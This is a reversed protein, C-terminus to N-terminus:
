KASNKAKYLDNFVQTLYADAEPTVDVGQSRMQAELKLKAAEAPLEANESQGYFLAAAMGLMCQDFKCLEGDSSASAGGSVGGLDDLDIESDPCITKAFKVAEKIEAENKAKAKMNEAFENIKM